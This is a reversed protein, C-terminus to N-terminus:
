AFAYADMMLVGYQNSSHVRSGKANDGAAGMVFPLPLFHEESPHNERAHPAQARYHIIAQSDGAEVHQHVWEGFTSVWAPPPSNVTYGGRFFEQLNHTASGSGIVLVGEERLPALAKGMAYHHAAGKQPQVSVQVVPIDAEPFLLMLPVWTGHDYGRGTVTRGALGADDLLAAARQALAPEGRAQYRMQNLERAFGGFDYIMDPKSDATFTPVGTEFHATAVLIAKPKGFDKVIQQGYQELFVRAESNKLVLDPAGHSVFLAPQHSNPM